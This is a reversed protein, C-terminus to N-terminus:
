IRRSGRDSGSSFNSHDEPSDDVVAQVEVDEGIRFRRRCLLDQRPRPRPNQFSQKYYENQRGQDRKPSHSHKM